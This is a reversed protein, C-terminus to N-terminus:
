KVERCGAATKDSKLLAVKGGVADLVVRASQDGVRIDERPQKSADSAVRGTFGASNAAYTLTVSGDLTRLRYSRDPKLAGEYFAQGLATFIDVDEAANRITVRGSTDKVDIAGAACSIETRGNISIVHVGNRVNAITMNGNGTTVDVLGGVGDASLNGSGTSAVVNGGIARLTLNASGLRADVNGEVEEVRVNGSAAQVNVTRVGRINVSARESSISEVSASRPVRLAVPGNTTVEVIHPEVRRVHLDRRNAPLEIDLTKGAGGTITALGAEHRVRIRDGAQLPVSTPPLMSPPAANGVALLVILLSNFM